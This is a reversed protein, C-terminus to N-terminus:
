GYGFCWALSRKCHGAGLRPACGRPRPVHYSRFLMLPVRAVTSPTATAQRKAPRGADSPSCRGRLSAQLHCIAKTRGGGPYPPQRPSVAAIINDFAAQLSFSPENLMLERGAAATVDAARMRPEARARASRLARGTRAPHRSGARAPVGNADGRRGALTAAWPWAQAHPRSKLGTQAPHPAAGRPFRRFGAPAPLPARVGPALVLLGASPRADLM